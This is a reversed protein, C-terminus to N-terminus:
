SHPALLTFPYEPLNRLIWFIVIIVFVSRVFGVSYFLHQVIKKERFTNLVFVLASYLMLPLSLVMLLNCHLASSLDGHLLASIARQSGCGPCYYGTYENFLCRPFFNKVHRADFFFYLLVLTLVVTGSFLLRIYKKAGM